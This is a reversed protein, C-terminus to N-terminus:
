VRKKLGEVFHLEGSSEAKQGSESGLCVAHRPSRGILPDLGQGSPAGPARGVM